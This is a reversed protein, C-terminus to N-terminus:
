AKSLEREILPLLEGRLRQIELLDERIRRAPEQTQLYDLVEQGFNIAEEDVAVTQTIVDVSQTLPNVIASWHGYTGIEM